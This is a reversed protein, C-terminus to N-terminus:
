DYIGKKTKNRIFYAMLGILFTFLINIIPLRNFFSNFILPDAKKIPVFRKKNSDISFEFTEHDCNNQRETNFINWIYMNNLECFPLISNKYHMDEYSNQSYNFPFGLLFMQTLLFIITITKKPFNFKDFIKCVLICFSVIVFYGYYFTKVSDGVEPDFNNIFVGSASLAIVLIGVLPSLILVKDKTKFFLSLFIATYLIITLYMGLRIRSENVHNKDNHRDDFNASIRLLSESKDFSVKPISNYNDTDYVVFFNLRERNLETYESNWYLKFFDGFTDLLVIGSFSDNFFYRNPNAIIDQTSFSTFFNLDAKNDYKLDHEVQTILKDNLFYNEASLSSFCLTFLLYFKFYKRSFLYKHHFFVEILLILGVMLAISVKSTFLIALLLVFQFLNYEVKNNKYKELLYFLWGLFVFALIEPKFSLRMVTLQPLFIILILSNYINKKQYEKISLYKFLGILGFVILLSNLLHISINLIENTTLNPIFHNVLFSFLYALYFYFNGQELGTSTLQGDYFLLYQIYKEFDPSQVIDYSLYFILFSTYFTSILILFYFINLNKTKNIINLFSYVM